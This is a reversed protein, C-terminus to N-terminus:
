RFSAKKEYKQSKALVILFDQNIQLLFLFKAKQFYKTVSKLRCSYKYTVNEHLSIFLYLITFHRMLRTDNM